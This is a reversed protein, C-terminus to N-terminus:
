GEAADELQRRLNGAMAWAAEVHAHLDPSISSRELILTATWMLCEVARADLERRIQEVNTGIPRPIPVSM